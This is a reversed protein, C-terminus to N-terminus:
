WELINHLTVAPDDQHIDADQHAAMEVRKRWRWMQQKHGSMPCSLVQLMHARTDGCGV